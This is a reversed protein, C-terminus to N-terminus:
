KKQPSVLYGLVPPLADDSNARPETAWNVFPVIVVPYELGKSQHITTITIADQEDSSQVSLTNKKDQWHKLFDSLHNSQRLGFDWIIDLRKELDSTQSREWGKLLEKASPYDNHLYNTTNYEIDDEMKEIVRLLKDEALILNMLNEM